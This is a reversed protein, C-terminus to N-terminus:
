PNATKQCVYAETKKCTIDDWEGDPRIWVCHQNNNGNNPQNNKWNNYSVFTKDVWSFVGEDLFDTLGIWAGTSGTLAYVADQEIQSEITALKAGEAICGTIADLYNVPGTVVKYCKNGVQSYGSSCGSTLGGTSGTCQSPNAVECTVPTCTRGLFGCKVTCKDTCQRGSCPGSCIQAARNCCNFLKTNSTTTFDGTQRSKSRQSCASDLLLGLIILLLHKVMRSCYDQKRDGCHIGM